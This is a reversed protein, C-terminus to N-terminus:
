GEGANVVVIGISSGHLPCVTDPVVVQPNPNVHFHDGGPVYHSGTLTHSVIGKM